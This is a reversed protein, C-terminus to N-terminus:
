ALPLSLVCESGKLRCEGGLREAELQLAAPGEPFPEQNDPGTDIIKLIARGSDASLTVSIEGGPQTRAIARLLAQLPLFNLGTGDQARTRVNPEVMQRLAIRGRRLEHGAVDLAKVVRDTFAPTEGGAASSAKPALYDSFSKLIGDVRFIQERMAKLNKEQNAPVQRDPGRLKETLVDLNIALANLPNRADHLLSDM